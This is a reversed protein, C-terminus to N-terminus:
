YWSAPCTNRALSWLVIFFTNLVIGSPVLFTPLGLILHSSEIRCTMLVNSILFQLLTASFLCSHCSSRLFALAWLPSDHWQHHDSCRSKTTFLNSDPYTEKQSKEGKGRGCIKNWWKEVSMENMEDAGTIHMLSPLGADKNNGFKWIYPSWWMEDRSGFSTNSVLQPYKNTLTCNEFSENSAMQCLFTRM